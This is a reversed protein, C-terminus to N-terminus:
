AKSCQRLYGIADNFGRVARRYNDSFEDVDPADRARRARTAANDLESYASPCNIDSAAMAADELANKARRANDKAEEFDSSKAIRDLRSRAEDLAFRLTNWDAHCAPAAMAVACAVTIARWYISSM